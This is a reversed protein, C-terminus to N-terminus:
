KIKMNNNKKVEELKLKQLKNEFNTTLMLLVLTYIVFVISIIINALPIRTIAIISLLLGESIALTLITNLLVKLMGLKRYRILLYVIVVITVIVFAMTYQSFVDSIRTKPVVEIQQEETKLEIGYKENIKSVLNAKQEETINSASILVKDEYAGVISTSTNNDRLVEVRQIEVQENELVEKAIQKIDKEDFDKGINIQIQKHEKLAMSVNFGITFTVIIGAVIIIAIIISLILKNKKM